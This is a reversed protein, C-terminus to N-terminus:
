QVDWSPARADFIARVDSFALRALQRVIRDQSIRTRRARAAMATKIAAAVHPLKLLNCGISTANRSSYDALRAAKTADLYKLYEAVFRAQQPTLRGATNGRNPNVDGRYWQAHQEVCGRAVSFHQPTSTVSNVM